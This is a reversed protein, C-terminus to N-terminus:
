KKKEAEGEPGRSVDMAALITDWEKKPMLGIFKKMQDYDYRPRKYKDMCYSKHANWVWASTVETRPIKDIEYLEVGFQQCMLLAAHVDFRFGVVRCKRKLEVLM